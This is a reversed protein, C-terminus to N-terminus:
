AAIAVLGGSESRLPYKLRSPNHLHGICCPADSRGMSDPHMKDRRTCSFRHAEPCLIKACPGENPTRSIGSKRSRKHVTRCDLISLRQSISRGRSRRSPNNAMNKADIPSYGHGILGDGDADAVVYDPEALMRHDIVKGEVHARTFDDAQNACRAAPFRDQHPSQDSEQRLLAALDPKPVVM